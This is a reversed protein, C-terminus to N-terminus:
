GGGIFHVIEIRDNENVINFDFDEFNIIDLNKEIAIKSIDLNLNLLLQSISLGSEVLSEEGNIYIKIKSM